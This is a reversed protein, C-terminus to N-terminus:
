NIEVGSWLIGIKGSDSIFSNVHFFKDPHGLNEILAKGLQKGLIEFFCRHIRNRVNGMSKGHIECPSKSFFSGLTPPLHLGMKTAIDKSEQLIQQFKPHNSGV